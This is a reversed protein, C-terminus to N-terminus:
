APIVMPDDFAAALNCFDIAQRVPTSHGTIAVHKGQSGAERKILILLQLGASDIDCVASLDLELRATDALAALLTEKHARAHYITLDSALALRAIAGAKPANEPNM